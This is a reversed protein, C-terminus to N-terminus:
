KHTSCYHCFTQLCGHCEASCDGCLSKDCFVCKAIVQKMKPGNNVPNEKKFDVCIQCYVNNDPLKNEATKSLTNLYEKGGETNLPM